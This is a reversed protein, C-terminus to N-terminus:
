PKVIELYEECTKESDDDGFPLADEWGHRVSNVPGYVDLNVGDLCVSERAAVEGAQEANEAVVYFTINVEYLRKM